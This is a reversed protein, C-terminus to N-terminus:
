GRRRGTRRHWMIFEALQAGILRYVETYLLPEGLSENIRMAEAEIDSVKAKIGVLARVEKKIFAHAKGRRMQWVPIATNLMGAFHIRLDDPACECGLRGAAETLSLLADEKELIRMAIM